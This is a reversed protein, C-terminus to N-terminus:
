ANESFRHPFMNGLESKIRQERAVPTRKYFLTQREALDEVPM